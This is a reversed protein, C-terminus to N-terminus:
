FFDSDARASKMDHRLDRRQKTILSAEGKILRRRQMLKQQKTLAKRVRKKITENDVKNSKSSIHSDTEDDIVSGVDEDCSSKDKDSDVKCNQKLEKTIEDEEVNEEESEEEDDSLQHQIDPAGTSDIFEIDDGEQQEDDDEVDEGGDDEDNKKGKPRRRPYGSARVERDLFSERCVDEEFVPAFESEYGFRKFFFDQVCKVDRDFYYKANPHNISIMQPFDIMTVHDDDGLMLNFENFDGHILGNNALKMILSMLEDYLSEVDAVDHVQQMPYGSILQMIVCHRNFDAPKPVPFGHEYLAKMNTFEKTAALRSLYIWSATRRKNHYDRKNKIQRFSTRGLRHIKLAYEEGDKDAVIYIDSEKGVGIQNGVSAVVDRHTLVRLALYDYGKNTLRYGVNVKSKEFAVLSHKSLERLLKHSGGYKLNAISAILSAPVIEHNKMGMEVATLARIDEVTLYRLLSVDLRGM